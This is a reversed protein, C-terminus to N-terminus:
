ALRKFVADYKDFDEEVLQEVRARREESQEPGIVKEEMLVEKLASKFLARDETLIEKIVEKLLSRDINSADM